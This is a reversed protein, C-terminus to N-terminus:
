NGHMITTARAYVAEYIGLEIAKKIIAERKAENAKFAKVGNDAYLGLWAQVLENALDDIDSM